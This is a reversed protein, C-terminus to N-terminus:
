DSKTHSDLWRSLDDTEIMIHDRDGTPMAWSIGTNVWLTAMGMDHAPALNRATDEVMVAKKPDIGYTETFLEYVTKEPKPTLGAKVIDFIDEFLDAIGLKELVQAAYVADANTFIVKRHDMRMLAQRLREDRPIPSLDVDHVQALYDDPDVDHHLMLGKLTTGHELFYRKQIKRAEVASLGTLKEVFAGIKEDIQPFLNLQASYLTNDLDFVWTDRDDLQERYTDTRHLSPTAKARLIKPDTM